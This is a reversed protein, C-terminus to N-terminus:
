RGEKCLGTPNELGETECYYGGPCITCESKAELNTVNSYTGNPCLTPMASGAPCYAGMPCDLFTARTAGEPCYYKAQCLGEPELLALQECFYGSM